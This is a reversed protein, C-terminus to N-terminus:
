GAWEFNQYMTNGPMRRGQFLTLNLKNLSKHTWGILDGILQSVWQGLIKRNESYNETLGLERLITIHDRLWKLWQTFMKEDINADLCYIAQTTSQSFYQWLHFLIYRLSYEKYPVLIEGLVAHTKGTRKDKIRQIQLDNIIVKEYRVTGDEQVVAEIDIIRNRTYHGYLIYDDAKSQTKSSPMFFLLLRTRVSSVLQNYITELPTELIEKIWKCNKNIQNIM